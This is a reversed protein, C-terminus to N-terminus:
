VLQKVGGREGGVGEGGGGMLSEKVRKEDGKAKTDTYKLEKKRKIKKNQEEYREIVERIGKTYICKLRKRGM